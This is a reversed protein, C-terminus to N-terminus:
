YLFSFGESLVFLSSSSVDLDSASFLSVWAAVFYDMVSSVAVFGSSVSAGSSVFAGSAVSSVESFSVVPADESSVASSSVEM